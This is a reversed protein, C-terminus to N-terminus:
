EAIINCGYRENMKHISSKKKKISCGEDRVPDVIVVKVYHKIM